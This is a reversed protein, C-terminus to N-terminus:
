PKSGYIGMLVPTILPTFMKQGNQNFHRPEYFLQRLDEASMGAFLKAPPIGAMDTQVRLVEPWRERMFIAPEGRTHFRPINLVVLRVHKERCLQAILRAFHLQYPGSHPPGFRFADKTEASYRVVDAPTARVAPTFDAFNQNYGFTLRASLSGLHEAVNPARYHQEWFTPRHLALDDMLNPRALSLLQRPMGLVAGGYLAAQGTWPLGTLESPDDGVRFWRASQQQPEDNADEDEDDIVLMRVHRRELLDRAVAHMLDFGPWPWCLSFVNAERGLQRSLERQVYPTDVACWIHSSGLFAIDVDSTEDFIKQQIWPFPGYRWPISPYVDRRHLWGTAGVLAPLAMMVALLIAFAAAQRSSSFAPPM